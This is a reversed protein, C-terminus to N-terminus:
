SEIAKKKLAEYEPETIAGSAKLQSLKELQDAVSVSSAAKAAADARTMLQVDQATVKPRVILYVLCGFLPLFVTVLLWVAKMGGSLDDRRIIDAFVGVWIWIFMFWFFFVIMSIFVDWFTLTATGAQACGAVVVAVLALLALGVRGSLPRKWAGTLATTL